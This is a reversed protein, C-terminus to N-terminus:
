LLARLIAVLKELLEVNNIEKIVKHAQKRALKVAKREKKVQSISRYRCYVSGSCCQIVLVTISKGSQRSGM